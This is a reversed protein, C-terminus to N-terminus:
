SKEVAEKNKGKGFLKGLAERVSNVGIIQLGSIKLGLDKPGQTILAKKFGLKAGEKLRLKTQGV